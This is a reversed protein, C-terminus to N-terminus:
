QGVGRAKLLEAIETQKGELAWGLATSNFQQDRLTLDAGHGILFEVMAKHGRIAAWHLGPAGFFGRCNIDAGKELLFRAVEIHGNRAAIHLAESILEQYSEPPPAKGWKGDGLDRTRTQGAGPKLTSPSASDWFSQVVDMMGLGAAAWMNLQPTAGHALLIEAVERSGMNAAWQLPTMGWSVEANIDAGATVLLEALEPYNKEAAWHLPTKNHAGKANALTTDSALLQRVKAVDGRQAAQLMEEPDVLYCVESM